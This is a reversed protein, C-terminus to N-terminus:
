IQDFMRNLERVLGLEEFPHIVVLERTGRTTKRKVGESFNQYEVEVQRIKGDRSVKLDSIIGYQYQRDFTKESKLFLVVDGIKPDRDSNFWKPQFMLSPVFSILWARFWAEYLDKHQKVIKSINESINVPGAPCRDNNRALLLRNPTLLDLNEVDRTVYRTAIPLNNIANAVQAGLTEWQISSLRTNDTKFKCFSERIHRIKREVKGHMYHAGVPCKEYDVGYKKLKSMVDYFVIKMSSAGKVLQSGADPLLKRPYGVKCSFRTFAFIFADTTYDDTVKLDVAGTTCCVFVVFWIKTSARKNVNSYSDFPGIMDVQTVYFPPAICFNDSSKPGMAVDIARKKLFRGRPCDGKILNVLSRGELVYAIQLVYRFVTDCGSHRADDHYWHVENIISFALPSYRDVLPVCFSSTSLDLCTDSLEIEETFQSPLIRGSFYLIGLKETSIKKYSTGSFEKVELTAKRYFYSMAYILNQNSVEVVLGKPAQFPFLSTGETILYRDNSCKIQNPLDNSENVIDCKGIKKLLNRLFTYVLALIRIVKRFRFRNPDIVYNSFKYREGIRDLVREGSCVFSQSALFAQGLQKQVWDTDTLDLKLTEADINKLDTQSLKIENASKVPFLDKDYQAWEPGTVYPSTDSIDTLKAGRRTGIDATMHKSDVHRWVNSTDGTLREIEIHRNRVWEKQPIRKNTIWFLAIQSDTLCVRDKINQDLALKVVHGTTATLVAAFLEGRPISMGEPILKTRGFVLQCSYLGNKRKFRVYIASCALQLSSDGMEITDMDLTVADEPVICRRFKFDRLQAIMDFNEKWKPVLDIPVNEKWDIQKCLDRLDLKMEAILPAFRGNLDFIEGVRAACDTRTFEDPIIGAFKVSKKGRVKKGFNMEGIKLSLLDSKPFWKLGAVNISMDENALHEPPDCGAFTVGKVHFGGKALVMELGETVGQAIILSSEGSICDDVYVDNQIIDYQRPYADKNLRSIERIAREAQNGSSKVGYILTKIVYIDPAAGPTLDPHYLCLQYCWHEKALRVSNYMKQVDTHFGCSRVLWRIFIQLLFNMNNRGKALTDNLSYGTDTAHSADFVPRVPTSLSNTNWVVRWPIYHLVPSSQIIEQENDSLDNLKSIYGLTCLKDFARIVDERNKPDKNLKKVQLSYIKEALHRNPRLHTNPDCIFPLKAETYGDDVKVNVSNDILEQEVEEKISICDVRASKKCNPCGRCRVCRYSAETGVNEVKEFLEVCRPTKRSYLIKGSGDSACVESFDGDVKAFFDSSLNLGCLVDGHSHEVAGKESPNESGVIYDSFSAPLVEDVVEHENQYFKTNDQFGLMSMGLGAMFANRYSIVVESFFVGMNMNCGLDRYMETVIKHPGALIGRTGDSNLFKSEFLTLGSPLSFVEKPFYKLYQVGIMLDTEGGALNPLKPLEDIDGGQEAYATRVEEEMLGLPIQPFESTITDLCLGSFTVEEGDWTPIQVEYRGHPCVCKLDSVGNIIMPGQRVCKARNITALYDATKKRSCSDLCGNDYFLNVDLGGVRITQTLYMARELRPGEEESVFAESHSHFISINVSFEEYNSIGKPGLICNTKYNELVKLNEPDNKHEDCILVHYSRKFSKHSEHPCRYKNFCAGSHNAKVGPSLCQFCLHKKRLMEMRKKCDSTAFDHCSFYNVVSKGKSTITPRHGSKGCLVCNGVNSQSVYTNNCSNKNGATKSIKPEDLKPEPKELLLLQETVKLENDLYSIIEDWKDKESHDCTVFKKTLETQRKRGLLGFIKAVNSTHFLHQEVGHKTALSKLDIMCNRLKLLSKVINPDGKVKCLPTDREITGLKKSVLTVVDGFSSKLRDWIEDLDEIEKVLEFAQGRLYNIKLHHHLLPAQIRPAVLRYFDSKFTYFDLASDYGSFKPLNIGMSSANKVKEHSLDREAIERSIDDKFCRISEQLDKTKESVIVVLDNTEKIDSSSANCLKTSRDLIDNFESDVFHLEKKADLVETDSLNSVNVCKLKLNSIRLCINGYMNKCYSIKEKLESDYKEAKLMIGHQEDTEIKETKIKDIKIRACKIFGDLKLMVKQFIVEYEMRFEEGVEEVRVMIDTYGSVLDQAAGVQQDLIEVFQSNIDDFSDIEQAIRSRFFKEESILRDKTKTIDAKVKLERRDKIEQVASTIYDTIEILREDYDPYTTSYDAKLDSKLRCHIDIYEDNLARIEGIAERIDSEDILLALANVTFFRKIKGVLKLEDDVLQAMEAFPEPVLQEPTFKLVKCGSRSYVKYDIREKSRLSWRSMLRYGFLM